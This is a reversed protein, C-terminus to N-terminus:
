FSLPKSKKVTCYNTYLNRKSLFFFFLFSSAMIALTVSSLNIVWQLSQLTEWSCKPKLECNVSWINHSSDRDVFCSGFGNWESWDGRWIWATAKQNQGFHLSTRCLREWFDVEVCLLLFYVSLVVALVGAPPVKVLCCWQKRLAAFAECQETPSFVRLM